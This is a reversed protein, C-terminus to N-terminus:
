EFTRKLSLHNAAIETVEDVEGKGESSLEKFIRFETILIDRLTKIQEESRDGPESGILIFELKRRREQAEFKM